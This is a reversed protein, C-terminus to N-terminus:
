GGVYTKEDYMCPQLTNMTNACLSGILGFQSGQQAFSPAVSAGDAIEGDVSYRFAIYNVIEPYPEMQQTYFTRLIEHKYAKPSQELPANASLPWFLTTPINPVIGFGISIAWPSAM